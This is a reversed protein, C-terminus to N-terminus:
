EASSKKANLKAWIFLCVAVAVCVASVIIVSNWSVESLYAFSFEGNERDQLHPFIIVTDAIVAGSLVASALYVLSKSLGKAGIAQRSTEVATFRTPLLKSFDVLGGLYLAVLTNVVTEPVMYTANYGLSYALAATSPISLGAWVTAGAVTHFIYRVACVLIMGLALERGQAIAEDSAIRRLAGRFTGGLGVAIFALMYDLMIVALVSQWGTVYSLNNLGLLQQIAAYVAGSGFGWVAGHRYSVIVMPLMSALTVSGGYPMDILKFLSLVTAFAIMISSEVLKKTMIATKTM